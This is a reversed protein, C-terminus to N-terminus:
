HPDSDEILELLLPLDNKVQGYAKKSTRYGLFTSAYVYMNTECMTYLNKIYQTTINSENMVEINIWDKTFFTFGKKNFLLILKPKVELIARKTISLQKKLFRRGLEDKLFHEIEKQETHRQYFLDCYTIGYPEFDKLLNHFKKFYRDQKLYLYDYSCEDIHVFDTRLSPNIGMVLVTASVDIKSFVFGKEIIDLQDKNTLRNKHESFLQQLKAKLSFSLENNPM